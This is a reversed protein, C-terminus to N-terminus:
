EQRSAKPRREQEVHVPAASLPHPLRAPRVRARTTTTTAPRTAGVGAGTSRSRLTASNMVIGAISARAFNYFVEPVAVVRQRHGGADVVVVIVTVTIPLAVM